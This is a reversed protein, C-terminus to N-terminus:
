EVIEAGAIRAQAIELSKGDVGQLDVLGEHAVDAALGVTRGDDIGHDRERLAQMKAHDGFADFVHLLALVEQALAAVLHLAVEEPM